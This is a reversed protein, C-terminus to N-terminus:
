APPRRQVRASLLDRITAPAEAAREGWDYIVVTGAAVDHLMRRERGVIAGLLGLGLLLLSLPLVLARVLARTVGIPNGQRDVVAIGALAMAPTRGFLAVSVWFWGAYWVIGIALGIWSAASLAVDADLFTNLALSLAYLVVAAAGGFLALSGFVDGAISLLRTVPGAYHGAVRSRRVEPEASGPEATAAAPDPEDLLLPPAVPRANSRHLVRDTVREVTVDARIIQRRVLDLSSTAVDQTAGAAIQAMNVQKALADIDLREAVANVDLREILADLDLRGAVADVDLRDVLANLDLRSAVADVDLRDVLAGLDLRGAVADVDLRDVLADLDLRQSVANVDLRDVLADLDLRQSVADVDLRDVLADLDLREAVANVDLRDLLANVDIREAVADVDVYELLENPDVINMATPVAM